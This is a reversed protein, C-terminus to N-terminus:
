GGKWVRAEAVYYRCAVAASGPLMGGATLSSVKTQLAEMRTLHAEEAAKGQESRTAELWRKSWRYVEEASGAGMDLSMLAAEYTQQAAEAREAAPDQAFANGAALCVVLAVIRSSHLTM